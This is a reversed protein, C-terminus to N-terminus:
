RHSRPRGFLERFAREAEPLGKETFLVSEAKSVPNTIYGKQHLRNMAGRDFSKWARAGEHQCLLLLALVARDIKDIDIDM